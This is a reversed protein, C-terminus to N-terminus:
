LLRPNEVKLITALKPGLQCLTDWWNFSKGAAAFDDTYAATKQLLIM